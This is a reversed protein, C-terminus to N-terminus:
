HFNKGKLFLFIVLVSGFYQGLPVFQVDNLGGPLQCSPAPLRLGPPLLPLSLPLPPLPPLLDGVM